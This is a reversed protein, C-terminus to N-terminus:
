FMGEERQQFYVDLTDLDLACLHGYGDWDIYCGNDINIVPFQETQEAQLQIGMRREPTHGHVIIRGKLWERDLQPYWDRIWILSATDELPAAKRFNIGAHVLVFGPVEFYHPLSEFFRVHSRPFHAWTDADYSDATEKGGNRMWLDSDVASQSHYANLFLQEHNGRLCHVQMGAEQMELIKDIVGRSDPGRDIYDGLLYLEDEPRLALRSLLAEFTQLHGHIDSIAFRRM